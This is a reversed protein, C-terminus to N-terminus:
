NKVNSDLMETVAKMLAKLAFPKQLFATYASRPLDIDEADYGSTYIVPLKPFDGRILRLLELGSFGPLSHDLLILDIDNRRKEFLAIAEPGDGATLVEFGKSKLIRAAVQQIFSEDDIVLVLRKKLGGASSVSLPRANFFGEERLPMSTPSCSKAQTHQRQRPPWCQLGAALHSASKELERVDLYTYGKNSKDDNKM